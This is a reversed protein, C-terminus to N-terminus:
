KRVLIARPLYRARCLADHRAEWVAAVWALAIEVTFWLMSALMVVLVGIHIPPWDTGLHDALYGLLSPLAVLATVVAAFHRWRDLWNVRTRLRDRRESVEM